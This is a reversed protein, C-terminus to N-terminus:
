PQAGACPATQDVGGFFEDVLLAWAEANEPTRCKFRPLPKEKKWLARHEAYWRRALDAGYEGVGNGGHFAYYTGGKVKISDPAYPELCETRTGCKGMIRAYVAGLAKRSWHDHAQDNLHFVEHFLTSRVGAESGFLSGSVNYAVAWDVAFASPTRRKVSEFFRFDLARWRFRPTGGLQAFFADFDRLASVAWALHTRLPGVPLRPVLTLQGRYGGDFPQKPLIGAVTGTDRYLEAALTAAQPDSEYRARILCSIREAESGTDCRAPPADNVFLIERALARGIPPPEEALAPTAVLLLLLWRAM